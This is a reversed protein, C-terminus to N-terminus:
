NWGVRGNGAARLRASIDKGEIRAALFQRMVERCIFHVVIRPTYYSGTAKRLDPANYDVASESQLVVSEFVKGLMEPDVAIEQTYPTSETITFNYRRLLGDEGLVRAMVANSLKVREPEDWPEVMEFLGGNLFPVIGIREEIELATHPNDREYNNLGNFLLDHLDDRYFNKGENEARDFLDFLYRPNRDLWRKKQLFCLFLLRSLLRQVFAHRQASNAITKQLAAKLDEFLNRYEKYFQETVKEVSFAERVKNWVVDARQEDPSLRIDELIQRETYTLDFPADLHLLRLRLRTEASRATEVREMGPLMEMLASAHARGEQGVRKPSVFAVSSYDHRAFAFLYDGQPFRRYFPELIPALQTKGIRNKVAEAQLEILFVQFHSADTNHDAVLHMSGILEQARAPLEDFNWETPQVRYQWARFFDFVADRSSFDFPSTLM